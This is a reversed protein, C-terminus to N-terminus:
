ESPNGKYPKLRLHKSTSNRSNNRRFVTKTDVLFDDHKGEPLAIHIGNEDAKALDQSNPTFLEDNTPYILGIGTEPFQQKIKDAVIITNFRSIKKLRGGGINGYTNVPDSKLLYQGLLQRQRLNTESKDNSSIQRLIEKATRSLARTILQPQSVEVLGSAMVMYSPLQRSGDLVEALAVIGASHTVSLFTDKSARRLDEQKKGTAQRFTFIDADSADFHEVCDEATQTLVKETSGVGGVLTLRNNKTM